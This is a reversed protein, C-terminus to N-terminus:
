SAALEAPDVLHRPDPPAGYLIDIVQRAALEAMAASSAATVGAVHPTALLNPASWLPNDAAPPEEQFTDLGAGGIHGDQLAQALALEDVLGGRATNVIYAGPKMLRIRKAGILHRTGKTLPVHLSLIDCESLLTGLERAAGADFANIADQAHPDHIIVRMGLAVAMRAVEQGISGFGVLGIVTRSIDRGIFSPKPWQGAKVALDLRPLEKLLALSLTMSLEAVARANSGMGRVVPIKRAAAASLDINDVGVGHKAIVRLRRSAAVVAETVKGQRVILADVEYRGVREAVEAPPAYAPSFIVDIDRGQLMAVAQGGLRDHTVLVRFKRKFEEFAPV